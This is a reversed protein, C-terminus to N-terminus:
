KRLQNNMRQKERLIAEFRKNSKRFEIIGLIVIFILILSFVSLVIIIVIEYNNIYM